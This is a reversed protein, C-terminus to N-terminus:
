AQALQTALRIRQAEGGSLSAASRDLSIYDLGVDVLFSLRAVIEKLIRDAIVRERDTLVGTSAQLEEVWRLGASTNMQTVQYINLGAVTFALAEPRLRKGKCVPCPITTMYREIEGRVYDSETEQYRRELNPIVGEFETEYTRHHGRHSVYKVPIRMARQATSSSHQM